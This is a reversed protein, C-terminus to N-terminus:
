FANGGGKSNNRSNIEEQTLPPLGISKRKENVTEPDLKGPWFGYVTKGTKFFSSHDEFRAWFFPRINGKKIEANIYPKFFDWVWSDKDYIGRQHWLIMEGEKQWGHEKTIDILARVNLSDAYVFAKQHFEKKEKSLKPWLISQYKKRILSDKPKNYKMLSDFAANSIEPTLGFYYNSMKRTEEDRNLIKQIKFYAVPDKLNRYFQELHRNYNKAIKKACLQYTANESFTIITSKEIKMKEIAAIIFNRSLDAKGLEAALLSAHLYDISRQPQAISFGEQYLKLAQTKLNKNEARRANLLLEAQKKFDIQGFSLTTVCVFLILIKTKM